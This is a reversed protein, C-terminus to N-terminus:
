VSTHRRLASKRKFPQDDVAPASTVVRTRNVALSTTLGVFVLFPFTGRALLSSECVNNLAFICLYTVPWLGISGPESRLYEIARRFACIFVWLFLSVGVFGLSLALDIYGNDAIPVVRRGSGISVSLLEPTWAAWFAAYGYGLIPHNAILPILMAWLHTRGTLTADRGLIQFIPEPFALLLYVALGFISPALLYAVLRREGRILHWMPIMALGMVGCLAATASHSLLLLGAAIFLFLHRAWSFRRFRVFLLLLFAVAMHEGFTNKYASLGKWAGV